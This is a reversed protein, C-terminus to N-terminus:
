NALQCQEVEEIKLISASLGWHKIYLKAAKRAETKNAWRGKIPDNPVDSLYIHYTKM